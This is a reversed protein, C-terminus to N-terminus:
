GFFNDPLWIDASSSGSDGGGKISSLRLSRSLTVAKAPRRVKPVALNNTLLPVVVKDVLVEAIPCVELCVGCGACKGSDIEPKGDVLAIANNSCWLVCAGCKVCKAWRMILKIVTIMLDLANTNALDNVTVEVSNDLVKVLYHPSVFEIGSDDERVTMKGLVCAQKILGEYPLAINFIVKGKTATIERGIIKLGARTEYESYWDAKYNKGLCKVEVRRRGGSTPDLWRWLAYKVWADPLKLDHGWKILREEWMTWLEPHTKMLMCHEAINAAPCLYCGLRDFGREYLPNHPLKNATIYAWVAIQPWEQIPTINLVHPIWRNRWVNGSLARDISEMGRQGVVNLVGEPYSSKYFKALPILKVLKCCWRFDKAPPGFVKLYDWFSRPPKVERLSLGYYRVTDVVNDLTEPLELGTDNFVVEPELGARLTLDLAVLSDKGGSYSVTAPLRVKSSLAYVRKIGRSVLTRLKSDNARIFDQLSSKGTVMRSRTAKSFLTQVRVRSNRVVAVGLPEGDKGVVVYQTDEEDEAVALVDLPKAKDVAVTKVLGEKVAVEASYKSLRWRWRLKLPDFFYRGVVVGGVLVEKMDDYHPVKNILVLSGELNLEKILSSSGFENIISERIVEMDGAFAPRIDGPPNLRVEFGESGCADCMDQILPVNCSPCWRVRVQLPWKFRMEVDKFLTVM